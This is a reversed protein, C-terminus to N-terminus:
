KILMGFDGTHLMHLAQKRIEPNDLGQEGNRWLLDFTRFLMRLRSRETSKHEDEDSGAWWGYGEEEHDGGHGVPLLCFHGEFTSLCPSPDQPPQFFKPKKM